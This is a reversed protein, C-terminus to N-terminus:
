EEEPIMLNTESDTKPMDHGDHKGIWGCELCRYMDRRLQTISDRNTTNCNVCMIRGKNADRPIIGLKKTNSVSLDRNIIKNYM